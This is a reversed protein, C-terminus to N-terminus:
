LFEDYFTRRVDPVSASNDRRWGGSPLLLGQQPYFQSQGIVSSKLHLKQQQQQHHLRVGRKVVSAAVGRNAFFKNNNSSSSSKPRMIEAEDLGVRDLANMSLSSSKLRNNLCAKYVQHHHTHNSDDLSDAEMMMVPNHHQQQPPHHHPVGSSEDPQFMPNDLGILSTRSHRRSRNLRQIFNKVSGSDSAAAVSDTKQKESSSSSSSSPDQNMNAPDDSSSDDDDDGFMAPPPIGEDLTELQIYLHEDDVAAAPCQKAMLLDPMATTTTASCPSTGRSNTTVRAVYCDESKTTRLELVDDYLAAPALDPPPPKSPPPPLWLSPCSQKHSATHKRANNNNNNSSSSNTTATSTTSTTNINKSSSLNQAEPKPHKTFTSGVFVQNGTPRVLFTSTSSAASFLSGNTLPFKPSSVDFMSSAHQQNQQHHHHHHHHHLHHPSPAYRFKASDDNRSISSLASSSVAKGGYLDDDDDDEDNSMRFGRQKAKLTGDEDDVVLGPNHQGELRSMRDHHHGLGGGGSGGGGRVGDNDEDDDDYDDDDVACLHRTSRRLLPDVGIILLPLVLSVLTSALALALEAPLEPPLSSPFFGATVTFMLHPVLDLTLLCLTASAVTRWRFPEPAPQLTSATSTDSATRIPALDSPSRHAPSRSVISRRGGAKVGGLHRKQLMCVHALHPVLDLTLLCLTASAVTRWRFPEPAPQLTSATSTDSATRIPALDSPSRHAPSRSVISRRGGAKVGGLHRKQLMCVHAQVYGFVFAVLALFVADVGVALRAYNGQAELAPGLGCRSLVGGGMADVGVVEKWSSSSSTGGVSSSDDGRLALGAAVGVLAAVLALVAVHYAVHARAIRYRRRRLTLMRDVLLSALAALLFTRCATSVAVLTACATPRWLRALARAGLALSSVLQAATLSSLLADLPSPPSSRITVRRRRRRGRLGDDSHRSSSCPQRRRRSVCLHFLLACACLPTAALVGLWAYAEWSGEDDDCGGVSLGCNGGGGGDGDDDRCWPPEM